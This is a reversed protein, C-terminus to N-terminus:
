NQSERDPDRSALWDLTTTTNLDDVEARFEAFCSDFNMELTDGIRRVTFQKSVMHFDVLFLKSLEGSLATMDQPTQHLDGNWEM